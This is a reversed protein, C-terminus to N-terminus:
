VCKGREGGDSSHFNANVEMVANTVHMRQECIHEIYFTLEKLVPTTRLKKKSTTSPNSSMAECKSPPYRVVQAVRGARKRSKLLNVWISIKM